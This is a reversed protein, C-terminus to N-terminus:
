EDPRAGAPETDAFVFVLVAATTMGGGLLLATVWPKAGILQYVTRHLPVGWKVFKELFPYLLAHVTAGCLGGAIILAALANGSGLQSYVTGPCAGSMTMGVGVLFTGVLVAPIGM